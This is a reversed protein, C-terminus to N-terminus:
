KKLLKNETLFALAFNNVMYVVLPWYLLWSIKNSIISGSVYCCLRAFLLARINRRYDTNIMILWSTVYSIVKVYTTVPNFHSYCEIVTEGCM